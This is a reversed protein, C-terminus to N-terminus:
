YYVLPQTPPTWPPTFPAQKLTETRARTHPSVADHDSAVTLPSAQQCIGKCDFLDRLPEWATAGVEDMVALMAAGAGPSMDPARGAKQEKTTQVRFAVYRVCAARAEVAEYSNCLGM